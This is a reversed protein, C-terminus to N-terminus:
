VINKALNSMTVSRFNYKKHLYQYHMYIEELAKFNADIHKGFNHPHWWLHYVEKKKAAYTMGKKIRNIKQRELFRLQKNYPRLFRSSSINVIGNENKPNHTNYGSINIYTDLLRFLRHKKNELQKTTTTEYMWHKESGRYCIIGHKICVQLYKKNIQNRPFVISKIKIGHISAAQKAAILDAEFQQQTQGLENCYYHCFTHTGIEHNEHKKILNILSTAYHYPDNKENDGIHKILKYPSFNKNFYSPTIQPSLQILEDKSTAFLFGVTAFTLSINYQRSVKLLKPIVLAVNEINKKYSNLSRVDFIGWYLEFDLSIVFHGQDM